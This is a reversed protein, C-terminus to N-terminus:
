PCAPWPPPPPFPVHSLFASFLWQPAL